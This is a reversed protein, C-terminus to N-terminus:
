ITLLIEKTNGVDFENWKHKVLRNEIENLGIICSYLMTFLSQKALDYLGKKTWQNLEAVDRLVTRRTTHLGKAIDSQNYGKSMLILV